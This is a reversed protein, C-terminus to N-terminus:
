TGAGTPADRHDSTITRYASRCIGSVVAQTATDANGRVGGLHDDIRTGVKPGLHQAAIGASQISNEQGMGMFVMGCSQIVHASVVVKCAATHLYVGIFQCCIGKSAVVVICKCWILIWAGRIQVQLDDLTIWKLDSIESELRYLDHMRLIGTSTEADCVEGIDRIGVM